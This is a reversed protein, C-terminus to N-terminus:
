GRRAGRTPDGAYFRVPVNEVGILGNNHVKATITVLEGATPSHPDFTIDRSMTVYEPWM